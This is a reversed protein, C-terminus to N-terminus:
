RLALRTYNRWDMARERMYRRAMAHAGPFGKTGDARCRWGISQMLAQTAMMAFHIGVNANPPIKM